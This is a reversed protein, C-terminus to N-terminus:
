GVGAPVLDVEVPASVPATPIRRRGPWAALATGVAMLAGGLWLWLVLPEVLVGIVATTGSGTPAAVLTLYVDDRFGSRVSPSGIAQSAFPFEHLAPAYVKGGDVRVQAEFSTKNTHKITKTGLYTVRHGALAASQGPALRFEHRHAYAHSAAFAVAIVVVGLHVVL